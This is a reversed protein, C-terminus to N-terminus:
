GPPVGTQAEDRDRADDNRVSEDFGDCSGILSLSTMLENMVRSDGHGLLASLTSRAARAVVLRLVSSVLVSVCCAGAVAGCVTVCVAAEGECLM